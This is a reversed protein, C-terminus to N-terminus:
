VIGAANCKMNCQMTHIFHCITKAYQLDIVVYTVVNAPMTWFGLATIVAPRQKKLKKIGKLEAYCLSNQRIFVSILM